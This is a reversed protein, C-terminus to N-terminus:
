SRSGRAHTDGLRAANILGPGPVAEAQSDIGQVSRSLFRHVPEAWPIFLAGGPIPEDLAEHLLSGIGTRRDFWHYLRQWRSGYPDSPKEDSRNAETM